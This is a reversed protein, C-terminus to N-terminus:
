AALERLFFDAYHAVGHAYVILNWGAVDCTEATEQLHSALVAWDCTEATRTDIWGSGNPYYSADVAVAQAGSGYVGQVARRLSEGTITRRTTKASM